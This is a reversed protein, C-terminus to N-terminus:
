SNQWSDLLEHDGFSPHSERRRKSNDNRGSHSHSSLCGLNSSCNRLNLLSQAFSQSRALSFYSMLFITRFPCLSSVEAPVFGPVALCPDVFGGFADAELCCVAGQSSPLRLQAMGFIAEVSPMATPLRRRGSQTINPCWTCVVTTSQPM